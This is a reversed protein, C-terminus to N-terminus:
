GGDIRNFFDVVIIKLFFRGSYVRVFVLPGRNTDQIVKFALAFMRPDTLPIPVSGKKKSKAIPARCDLPSPLYDVVADMLPQIGINRFAAGLLVPCIKGTLTQRRIADKIILPPVKLHDGNEELFLEMLVDDIEALQEVLSSRASISEKYLKEIAGDM